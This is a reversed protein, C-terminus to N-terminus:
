VAAKTAQKKEASAGGPESTAARKKGLEGYEKRVGSAAEYYERSMINEEPVNSDETGNDYQIHYILPVPAGNDGDQAELKQSDVKASYITGMTCDSDGHSRIYVRMGPRLENKPPQPFPNVIVNNEMPIEGAPAALQPMQHTQYHNPQQDDQGEQANMLSQALAADVKAHDVKERIRRTRSNPGGKGNNTGYVDKWAQDLSPITKDNQLITNAIQAAGGAAVCAMMRADEALVKSSIRGKRPKAKAYKVKIEPNVKERKQAHSKIQKNTRSQVITQIRKWQGWGYLRLGLLFREEEEQLWFNSNSNPGDPHPMARGPQPLPQQLLAGATASSALLTNIPNIFAAKAMLEQLKPANTDQEEKAKKKQEQSKEFFGYEPPASRGDHIRNWEALSEAGAELKPNINKSEKLSSNNEGTTVDEKEETKIQPPAVSDKTADDVTSSEKFDSTKANAAAINPQTTGAGDAYNLAMLKPDQGVQPPQEASINEAVQGTATDKAPVEENGAPALDNLAALKPDLGEQPPESMNNESTTLGEQPPEITNNTSTPM